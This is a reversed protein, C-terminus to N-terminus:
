RMAGPWATVATVPPEVKKGPLMVKQKGGVVLPPEESPVTIGKREALWCALAVALVLDDHDRERWAEFSENGATTVKCKFALLERRLTDAEPLEAAIKLREQGLLTQLTSVLQVKAVHWGRDYTVAHGATILVPVVDAAIAGDRLMDIVPRGVGTEDAALLPFALPPTVVLKGVDAVIAPYSTGLPWRHLHRVAHHLAGKRVTVEDVALASFDRAQGLDLGLVHAVTRPPEVTEKTVWKM